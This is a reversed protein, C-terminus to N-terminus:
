APFPAAFPSCLVPLVACRFRQRQRPSAARSQIWLISWPHLPHSRIIAVSLHPHSMLGHVGIVAASSDCPQERHLNWVSLVVVSCVSHCPLLTVNETGKQAVLSASNQRKRLSWVRERDWVRNPVAYGQLEAEDFSMPVDIACFRSASSRPYTNGPRLVDQMLRHLLTQLVVKGPRRLRSPLATRCQSQSSGHLINRLRPVLFIISEKRTM